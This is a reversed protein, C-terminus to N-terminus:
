PTKVKVVETWESRGDLYKVEIKYRYTKGAKVKKDRFAYKNGQPSGSHKAQKFKANVQVWQAKGQKRFVNFGAIQSESTTQWKLINKNEQAIARVNTVNVATSLQLEFAGIDCDNPTPPPVFDVNRAFGRQDLGGAGFTPSGVAASCATNPAKDLAPSGSILAHTLTGNPNSNLALTTDLISGLATPMTGDSTTTIDSAGPTFNYFAQANTEGSHGFLNYNDANVTGGARNYIENGSTASTNGSILTRILTTTDGFDNYIAGGQGTASNGTLTSNIIELIGENEVVGGISSASNGSITSNTITMTSGSDNDIAGGDDVASNGSLTSDTITAIEDNEIAGGEDNASNGSLTSNTITLTGNNDIAGADFVAYNGSLTSNTITAIGNNDIAGGDFMATNGSLTSNTVTLTGYIGNLIAGGGYDADNGSLTSNTIELIGANLIGGGNDSIAHGNQIITENVTFDGTSSVYFVRFANAGDVYFNNGELTIESTINPLAAGLTINATLYLTDAGSGAACDPFTAADDNANAIAEDLTCAGSVTISNALAVPASSLALLMAAGILSTALARQLARRNRRPLSALQAYFYALRKLVRQLQKLLLQFLFPNTRAALLQQRWAAVLPSTNSTDQSM